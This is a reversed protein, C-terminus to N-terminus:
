LEIRKSANSAAAVVDVAVVVILVFDVVDAEVLGILLLLWAEVVVTTEPVGTYLMVTCVIKLGGGAQVLAPMLEISMEEPSRQCLAMTGAAPTM